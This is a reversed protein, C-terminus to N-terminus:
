MKRRVSPKISNNLSHWSYFKLDVMKCQICVCVYIFACVCLSIFIHTYICKDIHICVYNFIYAHKYLCMRTYICKDIHIYVYNFIYAHKYLCM